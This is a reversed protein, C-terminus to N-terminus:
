PAVTWNVSAAVAGPGIGIGNAGAPPIVPPQPSMLGLCGKQTAAILNCGDIQITGDERLTISSAGCAITLKCKGAADTSMRLFSKANLLLLQGKEGNVDVMMTADLKKNVTYLNIAEPASKMLFRVQGDTVIARDGPELSGVLHAYRNDRIGLVYKRNADKLYFALAAKDADPGNPRSIFGDPGLCVAGADIGEGGQALFGLGVRVEGKEATSKMVDATGFTQDTTRM